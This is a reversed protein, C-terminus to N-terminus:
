SNQNQLHMKMEVLVEQLANTEELLRKAENLSIVGDAISHNYEAMLIAFRQSLAIVDSNLGGPRDGSVDGSELHMGQLEAMAKTVLPKGCSSELEVAVNVPIFRDADEDALSAYRGLTAKSRGSVECARAYGMSKILAETHRKLYEGRVRRLHADENM